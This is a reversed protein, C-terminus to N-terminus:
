DFDDSSEAYSTSRHDASIIIATPKALDIKRRKPLALTMTM